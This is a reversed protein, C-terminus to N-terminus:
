TGETYTISSALRGIGRVAGTHNITISAGGYGAGRDDASLLTGAALTAPTAGYSLAVDAAGNVQIILVKRNANAPILATDTAGVVVAVPASLNYTTSGGGGGGSVVRVPISGSDQTQDNNFDSM